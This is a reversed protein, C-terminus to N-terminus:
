RRELSCSAVELQGIQITETHSVGSSVSPINVQSDSFKFERTSRNVAHFLQSPPIIRPVNNPGSPAFAFEPRVALISMLENSARDFSRYRASSSSVCYAWPVVPIRGTDQSSCLPRSCRTLFIFRQPLNILACPPHRPMLFRHLVYLVAILRPSSDISSQDSSKRIPFGPQLLTWDSRGSCM